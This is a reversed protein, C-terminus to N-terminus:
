IGRLFAELMTGIQYHGHYNPHAGNAQFKTRNATVIDADVDVDPEKNYYLPTGGQMMDFCALGWKNALDRIAQRHGVDTGFPVILAIKTYPYKNILYPLVVNYAGYYSDNTTDNITGLSGFATDNWGFFLTLYDINDPLLTYEGDVVSFGPVTSTGGSGQVCAGSVGGNYFTMGNRAAIQYGYAAPENTEWLSWQKTYPSYQYSEITPTVLEDGTMDAGYTISDGCCCLVKGHLINSKEESLSDIRDLYKSLSIGNYYIKREDFVVAGNHVITVYGFDYKLNVILEAANDPAVVNAYEKQVVEGSYDAATLRNANSDRFTWGRVTGGAFTDITFVDGASVPTTYYNWQDNEYVVNNSNYFQNPHKTVDGTIDISETKVLNHVQNTVDSLGANLTDIQEYASIDAQIHITGTAGSNVWSQIAVYDEGDPVFTVSTGSTLNGDITKTTGDKRVLVVNITVTTNNTVTYTKGKILLIPFLNKAAATFSPTLDVGYVINGIASKLEDVSESLDEKLATTEERGAEDILEFTDDGIVVHHMTKNAM